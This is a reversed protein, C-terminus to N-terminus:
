RTHNMCLSLNSYTVTLSGPRYSGTQSFDVMSQNLTINTVHDTSLSSGYYNSSERWTFKISFKQVQIKSLYNQIKAFSNSKVDNNCNRKPEGSSSREIVTTLAIESYYINALTM